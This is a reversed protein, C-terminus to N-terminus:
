LQKLKIIISNPLLWSIYKDFENLPEVFTDTEHLNNIIIYLVYGEASQIEHLRREEYKNYLGKFYMVTNIDNHSFLYM